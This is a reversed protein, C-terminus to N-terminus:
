SFGCEVSTTPISLILDITSLILPHTVKFIANNKEWTLHHASYGFIQFIFPMRNLIPM